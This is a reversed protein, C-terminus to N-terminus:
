YLLFTAVLSVTLAVGVLISYTIAVFFSKVLTRGVSQQYTSKLALFTYAICAVGLVNGLIKWLPQLADAEASDLAGEASDLAGETLIVAESEPIFILLTFVLYFFAHLHLAFVFHEAYFRSSYFAKLLLAFFPLLLFMTLPLNGLFAEYARGPDSLLELLKEGVRAEFAADLEDEPTAPGQRTMEAADQEAQADALKQAIEATDVGKEELVTLLQERSSGGIVKNLEDIDADTLETSMHALAKDLERVAEADPDLGEVLLSTTNFMSLTFFFLLSVVLYLRVPSVYQARRGRSFESTLFGPKFLLYRLSRFLRSDFEFTEGLLDGIIRHAARLYNRSNQGCAVCFEGDKLTGCNACKTAQENSM